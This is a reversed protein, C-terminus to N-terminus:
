HKQLSTIFARMSATTVINICQISRHYIYILKQKKFKNSILSGKLM